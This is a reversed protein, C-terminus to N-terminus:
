ELDGIYKLPMKLTDNKINKGFYEMYETSGYSKGGLVDNSLHGQFYWVIVILNSDIWM